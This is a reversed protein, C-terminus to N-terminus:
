RAIVRACMSTTTTFSNRCPPHSANMRVSLNSASAFCFAFASVDFPSVFGLFSICALSRLATSRVVVAAFTDATRRSFSASAIASAATAVTSVLAM